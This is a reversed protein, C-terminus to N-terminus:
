RARLDRTGMAPSKKWTAFKARVLIMAADDVVFPPATL